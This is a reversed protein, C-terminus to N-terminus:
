SVSGPLWQEPIELTVNLSWHTTLPSLEPSILTHQELTPVEYIGDEYKEYSSILLVYQRIRVCYTYGEGATVSLQYKLRVVVETVACTSM